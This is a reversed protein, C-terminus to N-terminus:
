EELSLQRSTTVVPEKARRAYPGPVSASLFKGEAQERLRELQPAASKSVPVVFASAEVLSCDLRWAIDCCQRIEAGTWGEDPVQAVADRPLDYKAAYISWIQAREEATPLDFFFTGLTFRRRLEPPLEAIANCTAIWLSRGNSVATIVKLADRLQRESQGVLSGKAAGLDLQVTPIGAENGAAKAVASKAAGPPGVLIVGAAGHDQMYALLTGLQDQGVGSTDGRAGGLMKEIEDIFVICSPRSRGKLVRGLFSKIVDCGGIDTFSDGGRFVKLAPTQEIVQRKREWCGAVDLGKKRLSMATVQEAAFASLGRLAEVAQAVTEPQSAVGADTHLREVIVALEAETPLPEDFVTVDDILEAPLQFCKALFIVTRQDVKFPDRLNWFAQLVTDDSLWRDALHIFLVSGPELQLAAVAAAYPSGLTSAGHADAFEKAPETLPVMGRVVDWAVIAPPDGKAAGKATTLAAVLTQVTAVPDPTNIAILPTSCRRANKVQNVISPKVQNVISPM